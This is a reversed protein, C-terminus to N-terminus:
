EAGGGLLDRLKEGPHDRDMFATGVLFADFGADKLELLQPRHHLGSESVLVIREEGELERAITFSTKVDVEFTRLNRNNVGILWAGSEVAAELEYLDHVEVLTELGIEEAYARLSRLEDRSLCAAILLAASAGWARAEALQYRDLIFDKRLIPRTRASRQTEWDEDGGEKPGETMWRRVAQLFLPSGGFFEEDTLISLAAAGAEIYEGAIVEPKAQCHFPGHSPSRYKIEAIINLGPGRLPESFRAIGDPAQRLLNEISQRSRSDAIEIRKTELITTLM